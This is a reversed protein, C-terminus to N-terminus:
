GSSPQQEYDTDNAVDIKSAIQICVSLLYLLYDNVHVEYYRALLMM